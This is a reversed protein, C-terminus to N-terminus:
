DEILKAIGKTIGLLIDNIFQDREGKPHQALIKQRESILFDYDRKKESSLNNIRREIEESGMDGIKM